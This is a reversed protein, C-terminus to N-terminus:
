SGRARDDQVFRCAGRSRWQSPTEGLLARCDRTFHAQDAYGCMQAVAAFSLERRGACLLARHLRLIRLTLKPSLGIERLVRDRLTREPMALTATARGVSALEAASARAIAAVIPSASALPSACTSGVASRGSARSSAARRVLRLMEGVLRSPPADAALELERLVRGPFAVGIPVATDALEAASARVLASLVGPRLRIAVTAVRHGRDITAAKSRPGVLTVRLARGAASETVVAILHASADPVVRWNRDGHRRSEVSVDEILGQLDVPASTIDLEARRRGGNDLLMMVTICSTQPPVDGPALTVGPRKEDIVPESSPTASSAASGIPRAAESPRPIPRLGVEAATVSSRM